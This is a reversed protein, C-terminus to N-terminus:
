ITFGVAQITPLPLTINLEKAKDKIRTIDESLAMLEEFSYVGEENFNKPVLAFQCPTDYGDNFAITKCKLKRALDDALSEGGQEDETMDLIFGFILYNYRSIGM